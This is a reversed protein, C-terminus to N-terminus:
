ENSKGELCYVTDLSLKNAARIVDERTVNKLKDTYDKVSILESFDSFASLYADIGEPTDQVGKYIDCIAKISATLEDDSFEGKKMVDLQKLIENIAKERNEKEIGSQITMIGKNRIFRSSCYYCLSLKERVNMFLRSYPGGGFVDCMVATAYFDDDKSRMGTRFGMVLKSQNIDMLETVETVDDCSEVFITENKSPNRKNILGFKEKTLNIVAEEDISGIVNIQITSISLLEEWAKFLSQPTVKSVDELLEDTTVGYPEDKCMIERMRKFAYGRKDNIESQLNEVVLRKETELQKKSFAGDSVNPNLLLDFLLDLCDKSISEDGLALKDDISVISFKITNFDGTKSISKSLSAGYLEELRASLKGTTNYTKNSHSLYNTLVLDEATKEYIPLSLSFSIIGTKFMNTKITLLRIKDDIKTVKPMIEM